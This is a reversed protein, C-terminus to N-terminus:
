TWTITGVGSLTDEILTAIKLECESKSDQDTYPTQLSFYLRTGMVLMKMTKHVTDKLM